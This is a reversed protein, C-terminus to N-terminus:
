IAALTRLNKKEDLDIPLYRGIKGGIITRLKKVDTRPIMVDIDDDWPIFGKHRVTGILTGGGLWHRIGNQECCDAFASLMDVMVTKKEELTIREGCNETGLDFNM